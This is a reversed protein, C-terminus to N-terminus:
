NLLRASNLENNVFNSIFKIVPKIQMPISPIINRAYGVAMEMDDNRQTSRSILQEAVTVADLGLRQSMDQLFSVFIDTVERRKPISEMMPHIPSKNSVLNKINVNSDGNQKLKDIIVGLLAEKLTERANAPVTGKETYLEIPKEDFLLPEGLKILFSSDKAEKIVSKRHGEDDKSINVFFHKTKIKILDTAANMKQPQKADISSNLESHKLAPHRRQFTKPEGTEYIVTRAFSNIYCDVLICHNILFFM